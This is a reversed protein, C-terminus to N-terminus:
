RKLNFKIIVRQSEKCNKTACSKDSAVNRAKESFYSKGTVKVKSLLTKQYSYKLSDNHFMYNFISKARKYSLDLNYNIAARDKPDLSTPDIYKGNYTPSAFGIIEVSSIKKRIGKDKFLSKAYIPIFKKLIKKMNKKLNHRGTSFYEKGFTLVVDGTAKNVDLKVGAKKFSKQIKRALKQRAKENAQAKSLSKKYEKTLSDMKQESEKKSEQFKQALKQKDEKIKDIESKATAVKESAVVMRVKMKDLQKGVLKNQNELTSIEKQSDRQLRRIEKQAALRTVKQEQYQQNLSEVKQSLNQKIEKLKDQNKTILVKKQMITTNLTKIKAKSVNITEKNEKILKNKSKIVINKDQIITDRKKIRARAVMNSDVINKILKQYQNLTKEKKANEQAKLELEQKESSAQEQLLDLHSMLQKYDKLEKSSAGEKQYNSKLANYTRLQAKLDDNEQALQQYEVHNQINSTGNRLSTSVYLLLFVFSLVMFLDSYSAWQNGDSQNDKIKDYNFSMSGGVINLERYHKESTGV